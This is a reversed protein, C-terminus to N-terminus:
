FIGQPDLWRKLHHNPHYLWRLFINLNRTGNESPSGPDRSIPWKWHWICRRKQDEKRFEWFVEHVEAPLLQLWVNYCTFRVPNHEGWSLVPDVFDHFLFDYQSFFLKHYWFWRKIIGPARLDCGGVKWGWCVAFWSVYFGIIKAQFVFRSRM